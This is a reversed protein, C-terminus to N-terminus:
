PKGSCVGLVADVSQELECRQIVRQVQSSTTHREQECRSGDRM